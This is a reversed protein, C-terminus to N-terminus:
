FTLGFGTSPKSLGLASSATATTPRSFFVYAAAIVSVVGATLLIDAVAYQTSVSSVEDPPCSPKCADLESQKSRGSLAFYAGAGLSAVGVGGFVYAMVPIPREPSVEDKKAAPKAPLTVSIRRNKEGERIVTNHELPQSKDDTAEFRFVHSGVDIMVSKGDITELLPKGDQLVRVKTLEEGSSSRVEFVITPISQDLENLWRACDKALVPPCTERACKAAENRAERYKAARRLTQTQEYPQICADEAFAPATRLVIGTVLTLGIGRGIRRAAMLRCALAAVM